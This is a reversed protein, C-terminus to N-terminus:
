DSLLSELGGVLGELRSEIEGQKESWASLAGKGEDREQELAVIKDELEQNAQRLTGIEESTAAILQELRELMAPGATEESAM